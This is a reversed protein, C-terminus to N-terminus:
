SCAHPPHGVMPYFFVRKSLSNVAGIAHIRRPRSVICLTGTLYFGSSRGLDMTSPAAAQARNGSDGSHGAHTGHSLDLVAIASGQGQRKQRDEQDSGEDQEMSEQEM